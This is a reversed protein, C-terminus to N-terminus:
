FALRYSVNLSEIRCCNKQLSICGWLSFSGGL